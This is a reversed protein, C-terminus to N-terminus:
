VDSPPLIVMQDIFIRQQIKLMAVTLDALTGPDIFDEHADINNRGWLETNIGGPNISMVDYHRNKAQRALSTSFGKLAHKSASYENQNPQGILGSISNIFLIRKLKPGIMMNVISMISFLNTQFLKQTESESLRLDGVYLQAANMILSYEEEALVSLLQGEIIPSIEEFKKSLDVMHWTFNSNSMFVESKGITRSLGIVSGFALLRKAIEFGLGSSTGTIIYKM